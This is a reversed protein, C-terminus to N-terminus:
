RSKYTLDCGARGRTIVLLRISSPVEFMGNALAEIDQVDEHKLFRKASRSNRWWHIAIDFVFICSFFSLCLSLLTDCNKNTSKLKQRKNKM